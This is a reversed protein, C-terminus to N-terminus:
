RDPSPRVLRERSRNRARCRSISSRRMRWMSSVGATPTRSATCRRPLLTRCVRLFTSAASSGSPARRFRRRITASFRAPERSRCRKKTCRRRPAAARWVRRPDIRSSRRGSGGDHRGFPVGNGREPRRHRRRGVPDPSAPIAAAHRRSRRHCYLAVCAGLCWRASRAFEVTLRSVVAMGVRETSAGLQHPLSASNLWVCSGWVLRAPLASKMRTVPSIALAITYEQRM